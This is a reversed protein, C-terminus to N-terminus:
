KIRFTRKIKGSLGVGLLRHALRAAAIRVASQGTWTKTFRHISLTRDTLTIRGTADDMPNLVERPCLNFGCCHRSYAGTGLGHKLLLATTHTVISGPVQRGEADCFDLTDYYSLLEGIFPMGARAGMGLGPAVLGHASATPDTEYGMFPGKAVLDDFPRVVEVDTDFYLGGHNYLIWLRAYDSVFAYMGAAYAQSTYRCANVDFNSEDWRVIEYDPMHRRWSDICKQASAPLQKGGFWCYHITHPIQITPNMIKISAM